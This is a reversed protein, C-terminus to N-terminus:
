SETYNIQQLPDQILGQARGANLKGDCHLQCTRLLNSHDMLWCCSVQVVTCDSLLLNSSARIDRWRTTDVNVRTWRNCGLCLSEWKMRRSFECVFRVFNSKSAYLKAYWVERDGVLCDLLYRLVQRRFSICTMCSFYLLIYCPLSSVATIM